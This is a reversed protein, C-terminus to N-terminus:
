DIGSTSMTEVVRSQNIVFIIIPVSIMLLNVAYSVGQRALGSWVIQNLAYPLTKLQETYIFRTGFERWLQQVSLIMLTLWAPKVMPMVIKWFITWETAGDVRASELIEDPVMAVMFQRMLFLGLSGAWVPVILAMYNDIWGIKAMILYNPIATVAPTFMLSLIISQFLLPKFYFDHKALPYAGMSAFIIYGGTGLVVLLVTNFFYRSMPVWSDRMLVFLDVFNQLTPNRVFFQPPYLWLEHMPKFASSIMFVMPLAMLVAIVALLTFIFIDGGASRTVRKKRISIKLKM